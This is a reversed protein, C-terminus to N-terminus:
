TLKRFPHRRYHQLYMVTRRQHFLRQVGTRAAEKGLATARVLQNGRYVRHRRAATVQCRIDGNFQRGSPLVRQGSTFALHRFLQRLSHRHFLDGGLQPQRWFRYVYM